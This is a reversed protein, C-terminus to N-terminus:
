GERVGVDTNKALKDKKKILSTGEEWGAIVFDLSGMANALAGKESATLPCRCLAYNTLVRLRSIQGKTLNRSRAFVQSTTPEKYPTLKNWKM